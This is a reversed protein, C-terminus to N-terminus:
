IPFDCTITCTFKDFYYHYYYYYYYYYYYHFYCHEYRIMYAGNQPLHMGEKESESSAVMSFVLDASYVDFSHTRNTYDESSKVSSFVRLDIVETPESYM